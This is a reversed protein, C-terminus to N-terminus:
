YKATLGLFVYRGLTDYMSAVMNGNVLLPNANFGVIPPQRDLLNNVGFRVNIQSGLDIGTDLDFYEYAAIRSDVPYAPGTALHPNSSTKESNLEGIHRWNLSVEFSKAAQWTARLKHRWRPIPSTPGEGTCTPGYLGTCDFEPRGPVVQIKNDLAVSGTFAFSVTGGHLGLSNLSLLYHGDIDVGSMGFSGTNLGTAIVRGAAPGNGVSLSGNADRQVLSCYIPDGTYICNNLTDTSALSGIYHKVTIRWYDASLILSRAWETPTFVIGATFTDATQPKLNPNGGTLQNFTSAATIKRYQAATV